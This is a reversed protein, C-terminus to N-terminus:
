TQELQPRLLLVELLLGLGAVVVLWNPLMPAISVLLQLWAAVAVPALAALAEVVVAVVPVLEQLPETGMDMDAIYASHQERVQVVELM